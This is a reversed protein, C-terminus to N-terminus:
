TPRSSAEERPAGRATVGPGKSPPSSAAAVRKVRVAASRWRMVAAATGGGGFRYSPLPARRHAMKFFPLARGARAATIAFASFPLPCGDTLFAM